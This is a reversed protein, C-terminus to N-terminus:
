CKLVIKLYLVNSVDCKSQYFDEYIEVLNYLEFVKFNKAFM